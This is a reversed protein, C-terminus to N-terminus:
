KCPAKWRGRCARWSTYQKPNSGQAPCQDRDTLNTVVSLKKEDQTHCFLVPRRRLRSEAQKFSGTFDGWWMVGQKETVANKKGRKGMKKRQNKIKWQLKGMLCVKGTQGKTETVESNTNNGASGMLNVIFDNVKVKFAWGLRKGSVKGRM